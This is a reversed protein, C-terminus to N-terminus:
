TLFQTGLAWAPSGMVSAQTQLSGSPYLGPDGLCLQAPSSAAPPSVQAEGQSPFSSTDWQGQAWPLARPLHPLWGQVCSAGLGEKKCKMGM